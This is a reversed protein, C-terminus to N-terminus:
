TEKDPKEASKNQCYLSISHFLVKRNYVWVAILIIRSRRVFIGGVDSKNESM